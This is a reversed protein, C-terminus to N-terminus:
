LSANFANLAEELEKLPNPINPNTLNIEKKYYPKGDNKRWTDSWLEANEKNPFNFRQDNLVDNRTGSKTFLYIKSAVICLGICENIRGGNNKKGMIVLPKGKDGFGAWGPSDCEARDIFETLKSVILRFNDISNSDKITFNEDLIKHARLVIKTNDSCFNNLFVDNNSFFQERAEDNWM